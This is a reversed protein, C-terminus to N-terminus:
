KRVWLLIGGDKYNIRQGYNHNAKSDYSATFVSSGGADVIEFISGLHDQQMYYFQRAGTPSTVCLVGGDLYTYSTHQSSGNGTFREEYDGFFYGESTEWRNGDPGYDLTMAAWNDYDEIASRSHCFAPFLLVFSLIIHRMICIYM